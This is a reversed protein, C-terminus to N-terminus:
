MGLARTLKRTAFLELAGPAISFWGLGRAVKLGTPDENGRRLTYDTSNM